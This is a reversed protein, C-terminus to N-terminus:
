HRRRGQLGLKEMSKRMAEVPPEVEAPLRKERLIQKLKDINMGAM